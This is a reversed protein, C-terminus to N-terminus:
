SVPRSAHNREGTGGGLHFIAIAVKHPTKGVLKNKDSVSPGNICCKGIGIRESLIAIQITAKSVHTTIGWTILIKFGHSWLEFYTMPSTTLDMSIM